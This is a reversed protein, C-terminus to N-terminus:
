FASFQLPRRAQKVRCQKLRVAIKVIIRHFKMTQFQALSDSGRRFGQFCQVFGCTDFIPHGLGVGRNLGSGSAGLLSILRRFRRINYWIEPTVLNQIHSLHQVM